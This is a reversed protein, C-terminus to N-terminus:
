ASFCQTKVKLTNLLYCTCSFSFIIIHFFFLLYFLQLYVFYKVLTITFLYDLNYFIFSDHCIPFMDCLQKLSSIYWVQTKLINPTPRHSHEMRAQQIGLKEEMLSFIYNAVEVYIKLNQFTKM